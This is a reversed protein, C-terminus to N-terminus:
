PVRHQLDHKEAEESQDHEAVGTPLQLMVALALPDIWHNQTSMQRRLAMLHWVTAAGVQHGV